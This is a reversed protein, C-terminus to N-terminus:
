SATVVTDRGEEKARYMATDAAQVVDDLSDGHRPYLAVGISATIRPLGSAAPSLRALRERV